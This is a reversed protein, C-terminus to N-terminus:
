KTKVKVEAIFSGSHDTSPNYCILYNNTDAGLQSATIELRGEPAIETTTGPVNGEPNQTTYFQLVTTGNNEIAFVTEPDFGEEMVVYKEGPGPQGEIIENGEASLKPM